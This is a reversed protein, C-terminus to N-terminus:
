KPELVHELEFGEPSDLKMRGFDVSSARPETRLHHPAGVAVELKRAVLRQPWGELARLDVHKAFVIAAVANLV